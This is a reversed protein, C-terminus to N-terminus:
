GYYRGITLLLAAGSHVIALSVAGTAVAPGWRPGAGRVALGVLAGYLALLPFLYRIQEFTYTTALVYDYAPVGIVVLLGILMAVYTVLEARRSRLARRGVVLARAAFALLVGWVGLAVWTVAGAFSYDLWGFRGVFQRFWISFVPFKGPILDQLFPLRPFYFQLLYSVTGTRTPERGTNISNTGAPAFLARDWAFRSVAFYTVLPVAFAAAAAGLSRRLEGRPMRALLVAVGILAGPVIGAFTLKTLAGLALLGGLAALRRPTPGFRFSRALMAFLAASATFLLADATVGSGVFGFMPQFAVALAGAPAALRTGPLLDRVFSFVFLVTLGCLLASLLRVAQLRELVDSGAWAALKYPVVALLYYAPPQTSTNSPGGGDDAPLEADLAARLAQESAGPWPPHGAPNGIVLSFRSAGLAQVLETSM